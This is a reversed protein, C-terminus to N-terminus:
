RFSFTMKKGLVRQIDALSLQDDMDVRYTDSVAQRSEKNALQGDEIRFCNADFDKGESILTHDM